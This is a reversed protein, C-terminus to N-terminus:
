YLSASSCRASDYTTVDIPEVEAEDFDVGDVDDPGLIRDEDGLEDDRLCLCDTHLFVALM